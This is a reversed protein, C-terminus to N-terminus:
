GALKDINPALVKTLILWQLPKLLERFVFLSGFLYITDITSLVTGAGIYSAFIICTLVISSINSDGLAFQRLTQIKGAKKLGIIFCAVMYMAIIVCDILPLNLM